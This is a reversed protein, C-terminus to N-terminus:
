IFNSFIHVVVFKFLQTKEAGEILHGINLNAEYAIKSLLYPDAIFYM